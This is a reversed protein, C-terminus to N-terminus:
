KKEEGTISEIIEILHDAHRKFSYLEATAESNEGWRKMAEQDSIMDRIAQAFEAPSDFSREIGCAHKNIVSYASPLNSLIPKGSALYDFLKNQSMGYRSLETQSSSYLLLLQAKDLVAPVDCKPVPGTFVINDINRAKAADRLGDLEEGGGVVVIDIDDQRMENAAEVLFSLGNVKRISGAYVVKARGNRANLIDISCEHEEKNRRFAELDVGNNIHHIKETNINGGSQVDWGKEQIYQSGGEMTFILADAREYTRRENAYLLKALMGDDKLYGYVVLTEPWLDRTEIVCKCDYRRALRLAARHALPHVSSGIIVDPNAFSDAARLVGRYYDLMNLIRAMGNGKYPRARIHVYSVAGDKKVVVDNDEEIGPVESDHFSSACFIFVSYGKASLERALSYHRGGRRVLMSSAYHNLIWITKCPQM